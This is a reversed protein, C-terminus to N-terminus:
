FSLLESMQECSNRARIYSSGSKFQYVDILVLFEPWWIPTCEYISKEKGSHVGMYDKKSKSIFM